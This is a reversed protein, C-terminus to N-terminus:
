FNGTNIDQETIRPKPPMLPINQYGLNIQQQPQQQPQQPPQQIPQNNIFSDLEDTQQQSIAEGYEEKSEETIAQSFNMQLETIQQELGDLRANIEESMNEFKEDIRTIIFKIAKLLDQKEIM